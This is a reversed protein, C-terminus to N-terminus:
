EGKEKITNSPRPDIEQNKDVSIQKKVFSTRRRLIPGTTPKEPSTKVEIPREKKVLNGDERQADQHLSITQEPRNNILAKVSGLSEQNELLSKVDLATPRDEAKNRELGRTNRKNLIPARESSDTLPDTKEETTDQKSQPQMKHKEFMKERIKKDILEEIMNLLDSDLSPTPVEDPKSAPQPRKQEDGRASRELATARQYAPLSKVVYEWLERTSLANFDKDFVSRTRSNMREKMENSPLLAVEQFFKAQEAHRQKMQIIEQATEQAKKESVWSDFAATRKVWEHKKSLRALVVPNKGLRKGVKEISRGSGMDRYAEFAAFAKASEGPRRTAWIHETM